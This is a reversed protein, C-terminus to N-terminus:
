ADSEAGKILAEKLRRTEAVDSNILGALVSGSRVETDSSGSGSALNKRNVRSVSRGVAHGDLFERDGLAQRSVLDM